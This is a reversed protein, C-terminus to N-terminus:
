HINIKLNQNFQVLDLPTQSCAHGLLNQFILGASISDSPVKLSKKSKSNWSLMCIAFCNIYVRNFLVSDLPDPPM